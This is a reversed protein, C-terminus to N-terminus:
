SASEKEKTWRITVPKGSRRFFKFEISDSKKDTIRHKIVKGAFHRIARRRTKSKIINIEEVSRGDEGQLTCVLKPEPLPPPPIPSTRYPTKGETKTEETPPPKSGMLNGFFDCVAKFM